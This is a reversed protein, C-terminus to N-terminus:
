IKRHFVMMYCEVDDYKPYCYREKRLIAKYKNKKENDMNEKIKFYNANLCAM